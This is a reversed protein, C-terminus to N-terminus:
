PNVVLFFSHHHFERSQQLTTSTVDPDAVIPFILLQKNHSLVANDANDDDHDMTSDDDATVSAVRNGASRM